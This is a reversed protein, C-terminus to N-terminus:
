NSLSVAFIEAAFFFFFNFFGSVIYCKNLTSGCVSM